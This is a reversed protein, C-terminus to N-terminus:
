KVGIREDIVFVSNRQKRKNSKKVTSLTKFYREKSNNNEM